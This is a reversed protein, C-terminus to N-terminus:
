NVNVYFTRDSKLLKEPSLTRKSELLSTKWFAMTFSFVAHSIIRSITICTLNKWEYWEQYEQLCRYYLFGLLCCCLLWYVASGRLLQSLTLLTLCPLGQLVPPRPNGKGMNIANKSVSDGHVWEISCFQRQSWGGMPSYAIFVWCQTYHRAQILPWVHQIFLNFIVRTEWKRIIYELESSLM